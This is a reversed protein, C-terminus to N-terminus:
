NHAVVQKSTWHTLNPLPKRLGKSRLNRMALGAWAAEVYLRACREVPLNAAAHRAAANGIATRSGRSSVLRRLASALAGATDGHLPVHVCASPPIEAFSGYRVAVICTGLALARSLTGSTEGASPYRLAVSIDVAGLYAYFEDRPLYGAFRVHDGVGRKRAQRLM